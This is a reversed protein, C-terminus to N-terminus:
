VQCTDKQEKAERKFAEVNANFSERTEAEDSNEVNIRGNEELYAFYEFAARGLPYDMIATEPIGNSRLYHILRAMLPSGLTRGAEEDGTKGQVFRPDPVPPFMMGEFRYTRFEAVALAWDTKRIIWSWLRLWREPNANQKWTRYCVLCAQKLAFQQHEPSLDAFKDWSLCVLDNRQRTLIIEHGISYPLMPLKLICRPAPRAADAFAEDHM